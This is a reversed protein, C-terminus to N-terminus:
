ASLGFAAVFARIQEARHDSMAPSYATASTETAEYIVPESRLQILGCFSCQYIEIDIGRDSDCQDPELFHQVGRPVNGLSIVPLPNLAAHCLRCNCNLVAKM